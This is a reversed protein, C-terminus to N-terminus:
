FPLDENRKRDEEQLKTKNLLEAGVIHYQGAIHSMPEFLLSEIEKNDIDVTVYEAEMLQGNSDTRVKKLIIRVPHEM